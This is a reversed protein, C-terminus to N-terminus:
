NWQQMTSATCYVNFLRDKNTYIVSQLIFYVPAKGADNTIQRHLLYWEYANWERWARSQKYPITPRDFLIRGFCDDPLRHNLQPRRKFYSMANQSIFAIIEITVAGSVSPQTSLLQLSHQAYHCCRECEATHEATLTFVTCLSLMARVAACEGTHEATSTFATYVCGTCAPVDRLQWVYKGWILM